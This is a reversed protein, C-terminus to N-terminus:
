LTRRRGPLIVPRFQEARGQQGDSSGAHALLVDHLGKYDDFLGRNETLPVAGVMALRAALSQIFQPSFRDESCRYTTIAYIPAADNALVSQGERVWDTIEDQNSDYCRWVKIVTSPLVFRNTYQFAPSSADQALAERRTAFTWLKESLEADRVTAYNDKAWRAEDSDDGFDAIRNCGLWSLAINVIQIDTM